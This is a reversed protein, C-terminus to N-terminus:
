FRETLVLFLSKSITPFLPQVYNPDEKRNHQVLLELANRIKTSEKGHLRILESDSSLFNQDTKARSM